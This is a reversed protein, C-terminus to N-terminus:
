NEFEKMSNIIADSHTLTLMFIISIQKHSLLLPNVIM